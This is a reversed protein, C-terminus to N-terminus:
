IKYSKDYIGPNQFCKLYDTLMLNVFPPNDPNKYCTPHKILNELKLCFFFQTKVM